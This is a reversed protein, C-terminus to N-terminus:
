HPNGATLRVTFRGPTRSTSLHSVSQHSIWLGRGSTDDEGTPLLGAFPDAPGPGTDTVTVVLRDGGPWVQVEVPPRGHVIANAVVESVAVVLDDVEAATVDGRDAARVARRAEGPAPDILVAGPRARLVPIPRPRRLCTAPDTYAENPEGAVLPHTRAVDRLAAFPTTRRDYLCLSWVPFEQYARNVTAEYGAWWDWTAGFVVAPLEGAVRIRTAGAAVREALLQRYAKVATAPRDYLDDQLYTVPLGAPLVSRVLDAHRVSLAAVVPEGAACGDRLFPVLADLLEDDSSHLLAEHRLARVFTM